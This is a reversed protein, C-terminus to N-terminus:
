QILQNINGTTYLLEIYTQRYQQLAEYYQQQTELWSRQAELFDIITTGGRTYAYKVNNLVTQSQQLVAQYHQMNQQQQRFSAHANTVEMQLRAEVSSLRQVAQEKLQHSKKIEGQNRNFFPLEITAYIGIYPVTNQPNWILGLDPQPYALSHQLKINSNSVDIMSRAALVDSRSQMSSTLLTPLDTLNVPIFDEATDIAISDRTGTLFMIDRLQNTLTQRLTNQQIDYQKSLLETRFLETQTIVENKFRIRNSQVLSDINNKAISLIDLQKQTTWANLWKEAASLLLNREVDHYNKEALVVSKNALDIKNRRQGAVQFTRTLQWWIQRNQDQYWHTNAPFHNPELQQLSQNNLVLNPRLKATVIDATAVSINYQETKLDPNNDKALQLVQTLRLSVQAAATWTVVIMLATLIYKASTM